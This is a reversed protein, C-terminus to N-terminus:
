LILRCNRKSSLTSEVESAEHQYSPSAYDIVHLLLDADAVEGLTARFAAFLTAPLKRIFGITDTM